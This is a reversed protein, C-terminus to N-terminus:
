RMSKPVEGAVAAVTRLAPSLLLLLLLAELLLM